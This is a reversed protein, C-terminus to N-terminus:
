EHDAKNIPAAAPVAATNIPTFHKSVNGKFTFCSSEHKLDALLDMWVEYGLARARRVSM